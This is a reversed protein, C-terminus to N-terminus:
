YTYYHADKRGGSATTGEAAIGIGTSGNYFTEYQRSPGIVPFTGNSTNFHGVVWLLTSQSGTPIPGWWCNGGPSLTPGLTLIAGGTSLYELHVRYNGWPCLQVWGDRITSASAPAAPAVLSVAAAISSLIGALAKKANVLSWEM